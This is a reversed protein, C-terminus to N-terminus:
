STERATTVLPRAGAAEALGARVLEALTDPDPVAAEHVSAFGASHAVSATSPGICFAPLALVAVRDPAHLMALLGRVTSGSTFVLGDLGVRLAARLAETSAAPAEVTRYAVM